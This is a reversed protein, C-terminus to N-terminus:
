GGSTFLATTKALLQEDTFHQLSIAKGPCESVCMGCGHCEAADIVAHSHENVKPIGYPCTRVCTLCAACRDEEVSAVVGGVMIEDKSLITMARSVTAKAQAISEEIPKPYHALGALFIGESSFDVPRLKAHAEILFGESNVPVKFLEFLETNANPVIGSALVLLDPKLHVPMGLIHDTVTVSLGHDALSEVKPLDKLTYRIFIVGAKRAQVFLEERFGYSRIDRYVIYVKMKPNKKKLLLASKLSHTCCIKSCYPREPIRSGVCQIFVISKAGSLREDGETFARDMDLQTMVDPHEGYFYQDPIKEKGGTALVTVGHDIKIEKGDGNQSTFTTTFNGKTGTTGTVTTQMFLNINPHHKIRKVLNELYPGIEEGQWTTRLIKANGGLAMSKEVLYVTRGQDAIGLAAEMGSVGGGIVLAAKSIKLSVQHLPESYAAKAVAMRVLDKAKETAKEPNDMHVWTNHDRINAMEFLYKNLGADRITKQFLPEHTRPSCSAVVVRNIGKERIIQKIHDQNDQSCAFLNDEVHIVHPLDKAYDRIAPVDAVGGINIGCNCVFVGIRPEQGFVNKEPPMEMSRTLSWRADSLNNTAAAASASAEMVAHPIDKPEQFTGCVFIGERNTSVPSLSSTKAFGHTNLEVGMKEALRSVDKNPSLGVSLVVMDFREEARKGSETAYVIRLTDDEDPFISHIRSRIFRLGHDEQARLNYKDFDKGYTRLDMYFIATDLPDDSHEKAIVAQKNAYMCCVSSCYSNDCTNIDRSGVCQLWAIKAPAKEDSPRVLHGKYPGSASLMREFEISTVVNPHSAYSYTDYQEPNFPTFGPALIVAGVNLTIKKEQDDFKIAQTPCFKECAKCKGKKIFYICRKADIVYKLPVAQAYPLYIAKRKSLNGDYADPVKKPCKEACLGCAICKDMDVYRPHQTVTVEFNGSEGSVGNVECLTLLEINMHRGVEVLKPSIICMSCDNTPFTKDLQSMVGGIASNKEVLYVLCGSDALDLSAQIGAIGGGVVLVSGITQKPM